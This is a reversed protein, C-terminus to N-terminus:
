LEGRSAALHDADPEAGCCQAEQEAGPAAPTEAEEAGVTGPFLCCLCVVLFSALWRCLGFVGEEEHAIIPAVTSGGGGNHATDALVWDWSAKVEM